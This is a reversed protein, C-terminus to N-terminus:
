ITKSVETIHVKWNLKGDIYVGLFKTSHMQEITCGDIVVNICNQTASLKKSGFMMFVTKKLNLSLKNAKFWCALKNLERNVTLTLNNISNDAYMINTDDAFLIFYLVESCQVIDNIYLIFLLPGLISGQPVGCTIPKYSSSVNNLCVYQKRDSLYNQIWRFAVGRIGYFSLKSLLIKHDITDFAKQLDVFIGIAYKKDDIAQSVKDYFDLLAMYTSHQSRFGYQNPVLIDLKSVYAWLRNNILKEVFKSFAPLISIPRYNSFESKSGTKFIPCVKAIKLLNPVNGTTLSCNIIKTLREAIFSISQKM